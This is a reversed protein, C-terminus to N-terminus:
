WELNFEIQPVDTVEGVKEEGLHLNGKDRNVTLMGITVVLILVVLAVVIWKIPVRRREERISAPNNGPEDKPVNGNEPKREEENPRTQFFISIPDFCCFLLPLSIYLLSFLLM